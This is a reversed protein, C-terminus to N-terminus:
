SATQRQRTQARHTPTWPSYNPARKRVQGSADNNEVITGSFISARAATLFLCMHSGRENYVARGLLRRDPPYRAHIALSNRRDARAQFCKKLAWRSLGVLCKPVARAASSSIRVRALWREGRPLFADLLTIYQRAWPLPEAPFRIPETTLHLSIGDGDHVFDNRGASLIVAEVLGLSTAIIKALTRIKPGDTLGPEEVRLILRNLKKVSRVPYAIPRYGSGKRPMAVAWGLDRGCFAVFRSLNNRSGPHRELFRELQSKGDFLWRSPWTFSSAKCYPPRRLSKNINTASDM